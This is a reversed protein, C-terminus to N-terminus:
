EDKPEDPPKVRRVGLIADILASLGPVKRRDGGRRDGEPPVGGSSRRPGRRRDYEQPPTRPAEPTEDNDDM